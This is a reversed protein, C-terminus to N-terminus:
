GLCLSRKWTELCMLAKQSACWAVIELFMACVCCVTKTKISKKVTGLYFIHSFVVQPQELSPCWLQFHPTWMPWRSASRGLTSKIKRASSVWFTVALWIVVLARGEAVAGLHLFRAPFLELITRKVTSGMTDTFLAYYLSLSKLWSIHIQIVLDSKDNIWNIIQINEIGKDVWMRMATAAIRLIQGQLLMTSLQRSDEEFWAAVM